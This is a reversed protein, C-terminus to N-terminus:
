EEAPPGTRRVMRRLQALNQNTFQVQRQDGEEARGTQRYLQELSDILRLALLQKAPVSPKADRASQFSAILTNIVQEQAQARAQGVERIASARGDALREQDQRQHFSQWFDVYQETVHEPLQFQGLWLETLEIGIAKMYGAVTQKVEEQIALRPDAVEDLPEFVEDLRYKALVDNLIDGAFTIAREEWPRPGEKLMMTKVTLTKVASEDVLHPKKPSAEEPPFEKQRVRSHTTIEVTIPIGDRTLATATTKRIIQRLDVLKFVKEFRHLRAVSPGIVRSLRGGRELQIAYELPIVVRGPGGIWAITKNRDRNGAPTLKGEEILAVRSVGQGRGYGSQLSIQEGPEDSYYYSPDFTAQLLFDLAVGFSEVKYLRKIFEAGFLLPITAVLNLFLLYRLIQWNFIIWLLTAIIRIVPKAVEPFLQIYFGWMGQTLDPKPLGSILWALVFALLNFGIIVLRKYLANRPSESWRRGARKVPATLNDRM